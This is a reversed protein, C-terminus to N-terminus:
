GQSKAELALDAGQPPLLAASHYLPPSAAGGEWEVGLVTM